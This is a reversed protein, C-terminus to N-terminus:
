FRENRILRQSLAGWPRSYPKGGESVTVHILDTGTENQFDFVGNSFDFAVFKSFLLTM